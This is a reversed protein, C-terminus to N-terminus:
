ARRRKRKEAFAEISADDVLFCITDGDGSVLEVADLDGRAIALHVAQRSIGLKAAVAGPSHGSVRIAQPPKGALRPNGLWGHKSFKRVAM